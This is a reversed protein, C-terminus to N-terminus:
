SGPWRFPVVEHSPDCCWAGDALCQGCICFDYCDLCRRAEEDGKIYVSARTCVRCWADPIQGQRRTRPVTEADEKRGDLVALMAEDGTKEAWWLLGRGKADKVRLGDAEFRELMLVADHHQNRAAAILPTTGYHDAVYGVGVAQDQSAGDLLVSLVSCRGRMAAHFLPTRGHFDPKQFEEGLVDRLARVPETKGLCAVVHAPTLGELDAATLDAGREHLLHVSGSTRALHAATRGHSDTRNPDHGADLLLRAIDVSLHKLACMLTSPRNSLRFEATGDLNIDATVGHSVYAAVRRRNRGAVAGYLLESAEVDDRARAGHQLLIEITDESSNDTAMLLLSGGEGTPASVDAGKELLLKVAAIRDRHVAEQLPTNNEPSRAEMDAGADLLLRVGAVDGFSAATHLPTLRREPSGEIGASHELLIRSLDDRDVPFDQELGSGVGYHGKLLDLEGRKYLDSLFSAVKEGRAKIAQHLPTLVCPDPTNVDAGLELLLRTVKVNEKEIAWSLATRRGKGIGNINVGDAALILKIILLDGHSVAFSLLGPDDRIAIGVDLAQRITDLRGREAAWQMASCDFSVGGYDNASPYYCNRRYLYPTLQHHLRRSARALCSVHRYQDFCTAIAELIELPFDQLNMNLAATSFTLPTCCFLPTFYRSNAQFPRGALMTALFSCKPYGQMCGMTIETTQIKRSPGKGAWASEWLTDAIM